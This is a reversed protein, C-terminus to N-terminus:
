LRAIRKEYSERTEALWTQFDKISPRPAHAQEFTKLDKLLDNKTSHLGFSVSGRFENRSKQNLTPFEALLEDLAPQNLNEDLTAIQTKFDEIFTEAKLDSAELTNNLLALVSKIQIKRGFLIAKMEAAPEVDGEYTGDMFLATLIVFTQPANPLLGGTTMKGGGVHGSKIQYIAGSEILPTDDQNHPMFSLRGGNTTLTNMMLSRVSKNSINQVSLNFSPFPTKGPEINAVVISNTKNTVSPLLASSPLVKVVKIEFPRVGFPTLEKVTVTEGERARYTAVLDERDLYRAGVLVSVSIQIVGEKISSAVKVARVPTSGAPPQWSELRPFLPSWFWSGVPSYTPKVNFSTVELALLPREPESQKETAAPKSTSSPTQQAVVNGARVNLVLLAAFMFLLLRKM